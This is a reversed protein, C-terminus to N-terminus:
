NQALRPRSTSCASLALIKHNCVGFHLKILRTLKATRAHPGCAAIHSNRDRHGALLLGPHFPINAAARVQLLRPSSMAGTEELLVALRPHARIAFLADVTRTDDFSFPEPARFEVNARQLGKRAAASPHKAVQIPSVLEYAGAVTSALKRRRESKSPSIYMDPPRLLAVTHTLTFADTLPAQRM